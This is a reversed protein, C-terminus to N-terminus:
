LWGWPFLKHSEIKVFGVVFFPRSPYSLRGLLCSARLEFELVGGVLLLIAKKAKLPYSNDM